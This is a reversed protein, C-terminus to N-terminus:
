REQLFETHGVFDQVKEQISSKNIPATVLVDIEKDKLAKCAANISKFSFEGSNTSAKGLDIKINDEWLNILNAKKTTADKISNIINFSFNEFNLLKRHYSAIKTSGFIVPTCFEMMRSDKFTKLIVEMGIGNLDGISIGVKIKPTTNNM